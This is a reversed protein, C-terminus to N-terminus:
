LWRSVESHFIRSKHDAQLEGCLVAILSLKIPSSKHLESSEGGGTACLMIKPELDCLASTQRRIVCHVFNMHLGIQQVQAHFGKKCGILAAAGDACIGFCTALSVVEATFYDNVAKFIGSGKCRESLTLCFMFDEQINQKFCYRVFVLLQTLGAVDTSEGTQLTFKSQM